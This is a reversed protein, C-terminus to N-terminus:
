VKIGVVLIDDTQHYTGQWEDLENELRRKQDSMPLHSYNMLLERFRKKMYKLGRSGGFQDQFGDTSMYFIDGPRAQMEHLEFTKEKKYEYIGIPFKSGKIQELEYDRIYYLPNKAGAYKLTYSIEDFNIVVLDMGDRPQKSGTQTQLTEVVRKDLAYLIQDPETIKEHNIVEELVANGLVTMLAGPVGHGTCDAVVLIRQREITTSWYFDGSVIDRPRFLIFGDRFYSVIKGEDGLIAGQLRQAYRISDRTDHYAKELDKSKQSLLENQTEIEEKQNAIETTRERVKQELERNVKTQLHENAQLQLILKEQTEQTEILSRRYRYSMAMTFSILQAALGGLLYYLSFPIINYNGLVILFGGALVFFNGLVFYSATAERIFLVSFIFIILSIVYFLHFGNRVPQYIDFAFHHLPIAILAFAISVWLWIKVYRDLRPYYQPIQLFSRNFLIYFVMGIYVLNGLYFSVRPANSLFYEELYGYENLFYLSIFFVYLLFYLYTLQRMSIFLFFNYILIMWLLGHFIGQVLNTQNRVEQWALKSQIAFSPEPPYNISNKFKVYVTVRSRPALTIQAKVDQGETPNHQWHPVLFGARIPVPNSARPLVYIEAESIYGLFLIWDSEQRMNNKLEIKVWYTTHPRFPHAQDGLPKPLSIYPIFRRAFSPESVTKFDQQNNRDEYFKLYYNDLYYKGFQPESDIQTVYNKESAQSQAFLESAFLLLFLSALIYKPSM